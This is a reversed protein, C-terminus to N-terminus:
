IIFIIFAESSSQKM